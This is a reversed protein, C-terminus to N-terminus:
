KLILNGSSYKITKGAKMPKMGVFVTEGSEMLVYRQNRCVRAIKGTQVAQESQVLKEQVQEREVQAPKDGPKIDARWWVKWGRGRRRVEYDVGERYEKPDVVCGFLSNVEDQTLTMM